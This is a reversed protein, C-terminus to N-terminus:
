GDIKELTVQIPGQFGLKRFLALSAENRWNIHALFLGPHLRMLEQIAEKALGQGRHAKLVFIGIERQKSLYVCGAPFGAPSSFWYWATHPRSRIYACHAEWTPMQKHSISQSPEREELLQYLLEWRGSDYVDHLQM